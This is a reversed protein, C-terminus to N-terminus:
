AETKEGAPAEEAVDGEPTAEDTAEDAVDPV